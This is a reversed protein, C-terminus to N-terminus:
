RRYREPLPARAEGPLTKRYQNWGIFNGWLHRDNSMLPVDKFIRYTKPDPTAVHEAPSAHLPQAGVLRDYLRLDEEITSRRGTDFSAYSVRACRAVSVRLGVELPTWKNGADAYIEVPEFDEEDYYPTHWAGFGIECPISSVHAQWMATALARMEPQADDHLRLGFFNDWETASVLVNIHTFPELLRNVLQKHAGIAVLREAAEAADEAAHKWALRAARKQSVGFINSSPDDSLEEAAAMGPQNKGWWVFSARTDDGRAEAILRATPVARSSSANRSFVRHTMLEGHIFKPYRLAMTTLRVGHPSVSDAVVNASIM